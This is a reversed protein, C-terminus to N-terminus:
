CCDVSFLRSFGKLIAQEMALLEFYPRWFSGSRRQLQSSSPTHTRTDECDSNGISQTRASHFLSFAAVGSVRDGEPGFVIRRMDM